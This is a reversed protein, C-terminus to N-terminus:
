KGPTPFIINKLNPLCLKGLKTFATQWIRKELPRKTMGKEFTMVTPAQASRLRLM